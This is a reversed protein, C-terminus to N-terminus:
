ITSLQPSPFSQSCTDVLWLVRPLHSFPESAGIDHADASSIAAVEMGIFKGGHGIDHADASGIAAVEMGIVKVGFTRPIPARKSNSM